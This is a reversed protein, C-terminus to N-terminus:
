KPYNEGTLHKAIELLIKLKENARAMFKEQERIFRMCPTNQFDSQMTESLTQQVNDNVLEIERM